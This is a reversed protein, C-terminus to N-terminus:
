AVWKAHDLALVIVGFSFKLTLYVSIQFVSIVANPFLIGSKVYQGAKNGSVNFPVPRTFHRSYM